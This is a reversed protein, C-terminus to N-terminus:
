AFSNGLQVASGRDRVIEPKVKARLAEFAEEHFGLEYFYHIEKPGGCTMKICLAAQRDVRASTKSELKVIRSYDINYNGAMSRFVVENAGVFLSGSVGKTDSELKHMCKFETSSTTTTTGGEGTGGGGSRRLAFSANSFDKSPVKTFSENM